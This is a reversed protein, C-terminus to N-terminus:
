VAEVVVGAGANTPRSAGAWRVGRLAAAVACGYAEPEDTLSPVSALMPFVYHIVAFVHACLRKEYFVRCNCAVSSKTPVVTVDCDAHDACGVNFIVAFVPAGHLWQSLVFSCGAILVVVVRVGHAPFTGNDRWHGALPKKSRTLEDADRLTVHRENGGTAPLYANWVEEFPSRLTIDLEKACHSFSQAWRWGAASPKSLLAFKGGIFSM